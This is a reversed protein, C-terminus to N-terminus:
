CGADFAQAFDLYDVFSTEGDRNYDSGPLGASFANVFDLYDFFDVQGNADFDARCGCGGYRVLGPSFIGNAEMFPGSIYLWSGGGDSAPRTLVNLSLWAYERGLGTGVSDWVRGDWRAIGKIPITTGENVAGVIRGAAYLKPGSGDDFVALSRVAPGIDESFVLGGGLPRWGGDVYQAINSPAAGNRGTFNGAVVLRPGSGDDFIQMARVAGTLEGSLRTWGSLTDYRLVSRWGAFYIVPRGNEVTAVSADVSFPHPEPPLPDLPLVQQGLIRAMGYYPAEGIWGISGTVVLEDGAPTPITCSTDFLAYPLGGPPPRVPSWARGDFFAMYEHDSPFNLLGCVAMVSRGGTKLPLMADIDTVFTPEAIFGPVLEWGTGSRKVLGRSQVGSTTRAWAGAAVYLDGGFTQIGGLGRGGGIVFDGLGTWTDQNWLAIGSAAAPVEASAGALAFGGGVALRPGEGLDAVVVSEGMISDLGGHMSSYRAGDFRFVGRVIELDFSNQFPGAGFLAPRPGGDDFVCLSSPHVNVSAQASAAGDYWVLGSSVGYEGSRGIYLRTGAGDDYATMCTIYQGVTAHALEVADWASGNWVAIGNMPTAGSVGFFGGAYLRPGSGADYAALARVIAGDVSTTAGFGAGLTSWARGNWCAIGAADIRAAGEGAGRFGGGVHLQPGHGSDFVGLTEVVVEPFRGEPAGTVGGSVASWRAGDWRALGNVALPVGGVTITTFGGGVFLRPGDGEDFVAMAHTEGDFVGPLAEVGTGRVRGVSSKDIAGDSARIREISGAFYLAPGSGDDHMAQAAVAAGAPDELGVAEWRAACQAEARAWPVLAAVGLALPLLVRSRDHASKPM